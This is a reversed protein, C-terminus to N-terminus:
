GWGAACHLPPGPATTKQPPSSTEEGRKSYDEGAPYAGGHRQEDGQQPHKLSFQKNAIKCKAECQEENDQDNARELARTLQKRRRSAERQRLARSPTPALSVNSSEQSLFNFFSNSFFFGWIGSFPFILRYFLRFFFAFLIGRHGACPGEGDHLLAASDTSAVLLL